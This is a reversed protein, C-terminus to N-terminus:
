INIPKRYTGFLSINKGIKKRKFVRQLTPSNQHSFPPNGGLFSLHYIGNILHKIAVLKLLRSNLKNGEADELDKLSLLDGLGM